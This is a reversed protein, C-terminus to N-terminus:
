YVIPEINYVISDVIIHYMYLSYEIYIIVLSELKFKLTGRQEKKRCSWQLISNM